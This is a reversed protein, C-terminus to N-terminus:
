AYTTIEVDKMAEEEEETTVNELAAATEDKLAAVQEEKFSPDNYNVIVTQPGQSKTDEIKPQPQFMGYHKGIHVWAQIRESPRAEPNVAENHLGEIIDQEDLFLLRRKREKEISMAQQIHPRKIIDYALAMPRDTKYGAAKIAAKRDYGNAFLAEVFAEEKETLVKLKTVQGM